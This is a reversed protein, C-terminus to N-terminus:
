QPFRVRFRPQLKAPTQQGPLSFGLPAAPWAFSSRALPFDALQYLEYPNVRGARRPRVGPKEKFIDVMERIPTIGAIPERAFPFSYAVAGILRDDIYVPSGSMGAFIGTRDIRDGSLRALILDQKPGVNKLVGLIEVEFEEARTGEFVTKGYGRQGPKLSGLPYFESSQALSDLTALAFLLPLTALARFTM